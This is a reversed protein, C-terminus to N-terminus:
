IKLQSARHFHGQIQFKLEIRLIAIQVYTGTNSYDRHILANVIIERLALEPYESYEERKSGVIRAKTRINKLVFKLSEEVQQDLPGVIDAQDLIKSASSKGAYSVCRVVYRSLPEIDQPVGSAFIIYGALTPYYRGALGVVLGLNQM